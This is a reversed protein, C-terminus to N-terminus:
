EQPPHMPNYWLFPDFSPSPRKLDCSEAAKLMSQGLVFIIRVFAALLAKKVSWSWDFRSFQGWSKRYFSNQKTMLVNRLKNHLVWLLMDNLVALMRGFEWAGSVWCHYNIVLGIADQGHQHYRQPNWEKHHLMKLISGTWQSSFHDRPVRTEIAEM